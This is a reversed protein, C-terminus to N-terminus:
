RMNINLNIFMCLLEYNNHTLISKRKSNQNIAGGSSTVSFGTFGRGLWEWGLIWDVSM